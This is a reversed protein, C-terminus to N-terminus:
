PTVLWVHANLLSHVGNWIPVADFRPGFELLGFIIDDPHTKPASHLEPAAQAALKTVAVGVVAALIVELVDQKGGIDQEVSFQPFSWDCFIM